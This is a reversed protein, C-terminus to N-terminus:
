AYQHSTVNQNFHLNLQIFVHLTLDLPKSTCLSCSLLRPMSLWRPSDFAKLCRVSNESYCDSPITCETIM